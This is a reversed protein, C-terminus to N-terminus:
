FARWSERVARLLFFVVLIRKRMRSMANTVTTLELVRGLLMLLVVMEIKGGFWGFVGLDVISGETVHKQQM